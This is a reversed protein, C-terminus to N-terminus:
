ALSMVGRACATHRASNRATPQPPEVLLAGPGSAPPSADPSALLLPLLPPLPLPLLLPPPLLLPLLLPPLVLLLPPPSAAASLPGVWVVVCSQVGAHPAPFKQSYGRPGPMQGPGSAPKQGGPQGIHGARGGGIHLAIGAAHAAAGVQSQRNFASQVPQPPGPPVHVMSASPSQTM